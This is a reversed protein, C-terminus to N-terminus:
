RGVMVVQDLRHVSKPVEVMYGVDYRRNLKIMGTVVQRSTVFTSANDKELTVLGYTANRGGKPGCNVM